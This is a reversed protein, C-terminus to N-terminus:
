HDALYAPYLVLAEVGVDIGNLKSSEVSGSFIKEAMRATM